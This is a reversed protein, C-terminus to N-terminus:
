LLVGAVCATMFCALMGGLMARMGLRALDRQRTPAVAGIGSIQVGISGFNAFGCLAYTLLTETRDSLPSGDKMLRGLEDYAIFENSILRVGLLEGALRCDAAEMGMLWALPAFAWGLIGRLTLDLGALGLVWQFLFECMAILALFAIIIAGIQLALQLGTLAGSAAADIVNVSEAEITTAGTGLTAPVETEPEMIKAIVVSAPAAIVSATILHGADIGMQVYAAMVGGAITAFGAQMITMLESTTMSPLYPRVVLPAEVQGFFINAAVSLSEAGSLRMTKRMVLAMVQVVRQMVGLHYLVAMLSAFFIITPLTGFAFSRLLRLDPQGNEGPLGFVISSGSEVFALMGTFGEALSAFLREGVATHFVFAALTFQLVLGSAIIRWPVQGRRSSLLWALFMMVFLGGFSILREM